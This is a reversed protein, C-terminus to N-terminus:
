PAARSLRSPARRSLKRPQSGTASPARRVASGANVPARRSLKRAKRMVVTCDGDEYADDLRVAAARVRRAFAFVAQRRHWTLWDADALAPSCLFNFALWRGAGAWALELSRYFQRSSVLNLSGSFVIVDAGLRLKEPERVFDGAVIACSEYGKRRAARVLWPQAELGTYHAPVIGRALLYGLLEARGCGVDLIRLGALPCNRAIADFRVEQSRRDDWLLAAAGRERRRHAEVYPRLYRATADSM